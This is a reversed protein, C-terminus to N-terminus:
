KNEFLPYNTPDTEATTPTAVCDPVVLKLNSDISELTIAVNLWEGLTLNLPFDAIPNNFSNNQFFDMKINFVGPAKQTVRETQPIMGQDTDM